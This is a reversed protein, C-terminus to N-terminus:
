PKGKLFSRPDIARGAERIEFYLQPKGADSATLSEALVDGARVRDGVTRLLRGNYGYLTMWGGGHDLIVLLGLGPLWDAYAVRGPAPARVEAGRHTDFLLGNWTLGGARNEGFRAFLAGHVPWPLKGRLEAFPHHGQVAAYDEGGPEALAARLRKLLEELAAANTKLEKLEVSRSDIRAQLQGLARARTRRATELADADRQREAELGALKDTEAALATQATSLERTRAELEAIDATRARSFDSSYALMRQGFAPDGPDVLTRLSDERGGLYAARLQAALMQRAQDIRTQARVSDTRLVALHAASDAHQTHAANFRARAAAVAQDARRLEAAVADRAAVDSQVAETVARIRSEVRGLQAETESASKTPTASVGLAYLCAVTIVTRRM